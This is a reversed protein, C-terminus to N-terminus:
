RGTYARESSQQDVYGGGLRQRLCRLLEAISDRDREELRAFVEDCDEYGDKRADDRYLSYRAASDLKVSLTQVLNHITNRVPEEQRIQDIGTAEDLESSRGYHRGVRSRLDDDLGRESDYEPADRVEERTVDAHIESREVDIRRVVGAPVLVSKGFFLPGTNIVLHDGGPQDRTAKDVKGVDGDRGVVTFGDLDYRALAERLTTSYTWMDSM